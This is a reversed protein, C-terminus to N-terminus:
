VDSISNLKKSKRRKSGLKLEYLEKIKEGNHHHPNKTDGILISRISPQKMGVVDAISTQTMGAKLLDAILIKWDTKKM